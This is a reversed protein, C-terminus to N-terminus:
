VEKYQKIVREIEVKNKEGVLRYLENGNSDFFISVPLLTGVNYKEIKDSDFDYDYKIINLNYEKELESWRNKM